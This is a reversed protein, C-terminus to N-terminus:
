NGDEDEDEEESTPVRRQRVREDEEKVSLTSEAFNHFAKWAEEEECIKRVIVPLQLDNGIKEILAGRENDWRSCTIIHHESSDEEIGCYTCMPSDAKGIRHLFTNFCGHGSMLQTIRYTTQGWGRELWINLIPSIAACTRKGAVDPRELMIQWQRLLIIREDQKIEKELSKTWVGELKYDRARLYVRKWYASHICAPPIGALILAADASVTRYGAVVRIALTREVRRIKQKLKRSTCFEDSWIPAGYMMVSKITNAYLKRRKESPGHLNPMLRGLSRMIRLTKEEMYSIHHEFKWHEDLFIGLYKMKEQIEVTAEGVRVRINNTINLQKRRPNFIVVQTKEEAVKLQLKRIRLLVRSLQLNLKRVVTRYSTDSVLVLTDDAYGIIHCNEETPTRLAWDYGINWLVPGLVSGQPVGSTVERKHINGDSDLFEISRESLYDGIIRRLYEPFGKEHLANLIHKWRLTNFANMIDLSAGAVVKGDTTEDKIIEQVKYLADYTSKGPRFGFQNETLRSEPHTDMWQEIRDVLIRELIKGLEALLCIPRVKPSRINLEGKPILTLVAEKWCSPFRGKRVCMNYCSTIKHLFVRPIYKIYKFKIGDKGPAKDVSKRKNKWIVRYIEMIDIDYDDNWETDEIDHFVERDENWHVDTPFLREITAALVEPALIETIGPKSKRLKGLVMKYPLGWPDEDISEILEKWAIHKAKNIEKRLEKKATRFEEEAREIRDIENNSRRRERQVKRRAEKSINRKGEIISNWWYTSRRNVTKAKPMSFNCAEILVSQLREAATVPDNYRDGDDNTCSWEISEQFKDADMKSSKWRNIIKRNTTSVKREKITFYIYKHDSYTEEELVTWEDIDRLAVAAAWTLDVVSSGQPRVCTPTSGENVLRYDKSSMWRELREGRTDTLRAGWASSKSNFDGCIVITSDNVEDLALDLEELFDSYDDNDYNPPFYCAVISFERWKVALTYEGEYKKVGSSRTYNPNWHIAINSNTNSIWDLSSRIQYPESIVTIGISNELEYQTLLDQAIRCHNINTQLVKVM